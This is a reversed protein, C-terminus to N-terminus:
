RGRDSKPPASPSGALYTKRARVTMGPVKVRVDLKHVTGDLNEATFGLVYQRHLEDAIRTFTPGLDDKEKLGYYGGGTDLALPRLNSDPHTVRGLVKTQKGIAYIMFNETQARSSVDKYGRKQSKDDEGDTFVLVVKRGDEGALANMSEDIADWLFTPNGFQIDERLIRVLSDRDSTFNPSIRIKDNFSGIRARDEPFLRLVFQEAGRKLLDLDLTMSGSTDLMIVVTIPQVDSKFTTIKQPKLNDYIEFHKEELDPVLHGESDTVTAYIAVTQSASRFTQRAGLVVSGAVCALTLALVSPRMM